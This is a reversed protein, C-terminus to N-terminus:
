GSRIPSVPNKFSTKILMIQACYLWVQLDLTYSVQAKDLEAGAQKTKHLHWLLNFLAFIVFILHLSSKIIFYDFFDFEKIKM